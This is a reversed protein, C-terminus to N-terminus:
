ALGVGRADVFVADDFRLMVLGDRWDASATSSRGSLEELMWQPFRAGAEWSLPFGGGFRPNLEIVTYTDTEQDVFVQITIAGYAGPLSEAIRKGLEILGAHRETVGKSVEGARVELRRRPVVCVASGAANVLVDLTYERGPAVTQVLCDGGQTAFDLESASHIRRVGISGSGRIPKVVLPFQWLDPDQAVDAPTAQRVTPFGHENLWEHTLQKDSGIAVGEPSPVAVTTGVAEFEARAAAYASLEPDITPVLLSISWEACLRLVSPIFAPDTARPVLASRDAAQFASSLPTADVVSVTGELELASISSQFCRLLSVRRGASSLLVNATNM